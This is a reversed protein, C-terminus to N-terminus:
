RYIVEQVLRRSLDQLARETAIQKLSVISNIERKAIFSETFPSKISMFEERRGDPGSLTFNAKIVVEYESSFENKESLIKLTFEKIEGNIIYESSNRVSIGQKMFEESIKQYLIDEINPEYTKNMISSISIEHFPLDSSHRVSYGCGAVFLLFVLLLVIHRQMSIYYKDGKLEGRPLPPCVSTDKKQM